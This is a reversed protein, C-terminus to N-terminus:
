KTKKEEKEIEENIEKYKEEVRADIESLYKEVEEYKGEVRKKIEEVESCEEEYKATGPNKKKYEELEKELKEYLDNKRQSFIFTFKSQKIKPKELLSEDKEENNQKNNQENNEKNNDINNENIINNNIEKMAYQYSTFFAFFVVYIRRLFFM